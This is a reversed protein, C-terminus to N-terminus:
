PKYDEWNYKIPVLHLPVRKRINLGFEEEMNLEEGVLVAKIHQKTLHVVTSREKALGLMVDIIDENEPRPRAPDLHEQIVKEFFTDFSRYCRELRWHLGTVLDIVWGVRPSFFDSASFGSLLTMADDIVEKLEGHEFQNGRHSTGFAVRCIVNNTLTFMTDNMEVPNPAARMINDVLHGVEDERVYWYSQVRRSTFLEMVCMKRMERWYEGYPSFALDLFDYSIKKQGRSLPRTCCDLDHTRLVDRALEPSSVVLTPVRGLQLLMIHGHKESLKYLSYHPIRGLQHLNGIIPLKQPSPPFNYTTTKPKSPNLLLYLIPIFLLLLSPILWPLSLMLISKIHDRSLQVPSTKDKSLRLLVNIIDEHEPKPRNPDLHEEIVREFFTDFDRFCKELRRHLGTVVDIVWGIKPFFDAVWFSSLMAMAEDIAEQFKQYGEFQKGEYSRGFAITCIINNALSFIKENVEIPHNSKSSLESISNILRAVERERVHWFSQVRKVTFLEIVCLKRIERWYESYPGFAVDLLNYSLKIAGHSYPRSCCELDHTKLVQKAMEPSSVVLTPVRGLKLLMVPGYKQSLKWLSRHPIKGLQHLNGIIPLTPPSPPLNTKSSAENTRKSVFLLSLLPLLLLVAFWYLEMLSVCTKCLSHNSHIPMVVDKQKM